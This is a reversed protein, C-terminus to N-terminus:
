RTDRRDSDDEGRYEGNFELLLELDGLLTNKLLALTLCSDGVFFYQHLLRNCPKLAVIREDVGVGWLVTLVNDIADIRLNIAKGLLSQWAMLCDFTACILHDVRGRLSALFNQLNKKFNSRGQCAPEGEGREGLGSGRNPKEDKPIAGGNASGPQPGGYAARGLVRTGHSASPTAM